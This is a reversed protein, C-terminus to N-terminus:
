SALDPDDNGLRSEVPVVTPRLDDGARQAIGTHLDDVRTKMLRGLLNGGRHDLLVGVGDAQRDERPRVHRENRLDRLEQLFLSGLIHDEDHASRDRM